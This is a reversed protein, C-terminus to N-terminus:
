ELVFKTLFKPEIFIDKRNGRLSYNFVYTGNENKDNYNIKMEESEKFKYTNDEFKLDSLFQNNYIISEQRYVIGLAVVFDKLSNVPYIKRENKVIFVLNFPMFKKNTETVTFSIERNGNWFGINVYIRFNRKIKPQNIVTELFFKTNKINWELNKNNEFVSIIGYEKFKLEKTKENRLDINYFQPLSLFNREKKAKKTKEKKIKIKTNM